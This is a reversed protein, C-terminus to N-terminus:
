RRRPDLSLCVKNPTYIRGPQGYLVGGGEGGLWLHASPGGDMALLDTIKVGRAKAAAEALAEFEWLSVAKQAVGFAGMLVMGGDRTVGAAVRDFRLGDDSRMANRGERILIPSSEVAFRAALAPAPEGKPVVTAARGDTALFGGSTGPSPGQLTQGEVRVLGMPRYGRADHYFFSGNIAALSGACPDAAYAARAPGDRLVPRVELRASWGPATAMVLTIPSRAGKARHLTWVIVSAGERRPLERMEDVLFGPTLAAPGRAPQAAFAAGAFLLASVATLAQRLRAPSLIM